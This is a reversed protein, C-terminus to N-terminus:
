TCVSLEQRIIRTTEEILKDHPVRSVVSLNEDVVLITPFGGVSFQTFLEPNEEYFVEVVLGDPLPGLTGIYQDLKGCECCKESYFALVTRKQLGLADSM